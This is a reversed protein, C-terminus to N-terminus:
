AGEPDPRTLQEAAYWAAEAADMIPPRGDPGRRNGHRRAGDLAHETLDDPGLYGNHDM